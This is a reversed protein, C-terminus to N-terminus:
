PYSDILKVMNRYIVVRVLIQTNGGSNRTPDFIAEVVNLVLIHILKTRLQSPIIVCQCLANCSYVNRFMSSGQLHTARDVHSHCLWIRWM